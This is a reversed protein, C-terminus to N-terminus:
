VTLRLLGVPPALMPVALTLVSITSSPRGLSGVSGLLGGTLSSRGCTVLTVLGLTVSPSSSSNTTVSLLGLAVGVVTVRVGALPLASRPTSVAVGISTLKSPPLVQCVTLPGVTSTGAPTVLKVTRTGVTSSLMLSPSSVMVRLAPVGCFAAGTTPVPVMTSLSPAGVILMLPGAM